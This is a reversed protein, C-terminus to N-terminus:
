NFWCSPGSCACLHLHIELHPLFNVLLQMNEADEEARETYDLRTGMM